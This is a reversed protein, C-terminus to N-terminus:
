REASKKKLPSREDRTYQRMSNCMKTPFFFRSEGASIFALAIKRPKLGGHSSLIPHLSLSHSHPTPPLDAITTTAKFAFACFLLSLLLPPHFFFLSLSLFFRSYVGWNGPLEHMRTHTDASYVYLINLMAIGISRYLFQMNKEDRKPSGFFFLFSFIVLLLACYSIYRYYM